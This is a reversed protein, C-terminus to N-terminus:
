LVSKGMERWYYTSDEGLTNYIRKGEAVCTSFGHENLIMVERREKELRLNVFENIM